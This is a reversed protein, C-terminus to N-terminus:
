DYYYEELRQRLKFKLNNIVQSVYPQSVDVEKALDKTTAVFGSERWKALIKKHKENTLTDYLDQVAQQVIMITEKRVFMDEISINSPLFNVYEKHNGEATNDVNNYSIIELQRKKNLTRVYTGLANYIYVTALTSLKTGKSNDFNCVANYLAEYGISEAEPDGALSFKNLQDYVLGANSAIVENIDVQM